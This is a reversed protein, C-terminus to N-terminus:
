SFFDLILMLLLKSLIKSFKKLIFESSTWSDGFIGNVFNLYGILVLINLNESM